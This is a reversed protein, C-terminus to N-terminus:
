RCWWKVKALPLTARSQSAPLAFLSFFCHSPHHCAPLRLIARNPIPAIAVSAGLKPVAAGANAKDGRRAGQAWRRAFLSCSPYRAAVASPEAIHRHMRSILEAADDGPEVMPVWGDALRAVQRLPSPAFSPWTGLNLDVVVADSSGLRPGSARRHFAQRLPAAEALPPPILLSPLGPPSPGRRAVQEPRM